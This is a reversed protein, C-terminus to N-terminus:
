AERVGCGCRERSTDFDIEVDCGCKKCVCEGRESASAVPAPRILRVARRPAWTHGCLLCLHLGDPHVEMCDRGKCRYCDVLPYPSLRARPQPQDM